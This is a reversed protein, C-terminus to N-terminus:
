ESPAALECSDYPWAMSSNIPHYQESDPRANLLVTTRRYRFHRNILARFRVDDSTLPIVKADPQEQCFYLEGGSTKLFRGVRNLDEVAEDAARTMFHARSLHKPRIGNGYVIAFKSVKSSDPIADAGNRKEKTEVAQNGRAKDIDTPLSTTTSPQM